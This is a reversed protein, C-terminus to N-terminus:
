QAEMEDRHVERAFCCARLVLEPTYGILWNMASRKQRDTLADFLASARDVLGEGSDLKEIM